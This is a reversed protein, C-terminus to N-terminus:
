CPHVIEANAAARLLHVNPAEVVNGTGCVQGKRNSGAGGGAAMHMWVRRRLVFCATPGGKRGKLEATLGRGGGGKHQGARRQPYRGGRGRGGEGREARRSEASSTVGALLTPWTASRIDGGAGERQTPGSEAASPGRRGRETM